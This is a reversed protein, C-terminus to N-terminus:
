IRTSMRPDNGRVLELTISELFQEDIQLENLVERDRMVGALLLFPFVSYFTYGFLVSLLIFIIHHTTTVLTSVCFCAFLFLLLLYLVNGIFGPPILYVLVSTTQCYTLANLLLFLNQWSKPPTLTAQFTVTILLAGVVLLTNLKEDTMVTQIRRMTVYQSENIGFLSILFRVPSVKLRTANHKQLKDKVILRDVQTLTTRQELIDFVTHGELNKAKIDVFQNTDLLSSVVQWIYLLLSAYNSIWVGAELFFLFGFIALCFKLVSLFLLM